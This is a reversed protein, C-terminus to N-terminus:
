FSKQLYLVLLFDGTLLFEIAFIQSISILLTLIKAESWEMPLSFISIKLPVLALSKVVIIDAHGSVLSHKVNQITLLTGVFCSLWSKQGVM